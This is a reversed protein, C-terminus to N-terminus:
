DYNRELFKFIEKINTKNNINLKHTIQGNEMIIINPIIDNENLKMTASYYKKITDIFNDPANKLNLYVIQDIYEKKPLEEKLKNEIDKLEEKSSNSLYIFGEPNETIYNDFDEVKIEKLFIMRHNVNNEYDKKTQYLNVLYVVLLITVITIALLIIYNKMPIKRMYEGDKNLNLM